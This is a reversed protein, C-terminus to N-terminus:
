VYAIRSTNSEANIYTLCVVLLVNEDFVFALYLGPGAVAFFVEMRVQKFAAPSRIYFVCDLGHM